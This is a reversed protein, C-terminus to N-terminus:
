KKFSLTAFHHCKNRLDAMNPFDASTSGIKKKRKIRKLMHVLIKIKRCIKERKIEKLVHVLIGNKQHVVIKKKRKIRKPVHVLIKIKQFIKEKKIGKLM